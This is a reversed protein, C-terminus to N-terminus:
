AGAPPPLTLLYAIVADIDRDSLRGAWTPMQLPPTPGTPDKKASVSGNQIVARIAHYQSLAIEFHPIDTKGALADLSGKALATVVTKVDEPEYLMMRDSIGALAPVAGRAYNFNQVGGRGGEGHCTVCGRELFIWKGRETLPAGAPPQPAEWYDKTGPAVPAPPPAAQGAPEVAIEGRMGFHPNGCFATCYYPFVGAKSPTVITERVHGPYAEIPGIGLAPAYFVHTVDSSAIRIATPQGLTLVPRAAPFDRRWYNEGNVAEETWHGSSAVATLTIVRTGPPLGEHLQRRQYWFPAGIAAAIVLATTATAAAELSKDSM